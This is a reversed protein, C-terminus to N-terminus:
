SLDAGSHVDLQTRDFQNWQFGFSDLYNVAPCFRPIGRVVPFLEGTAPDLLGEAVPVVPLQNKPQVYCVKFLFMM